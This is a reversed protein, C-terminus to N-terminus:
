GEGKVPPLLLSAFWRLSQGTLERTFSGGLNFLYTKMVDTHQCKVNHLPIQQIPPSVILQLFIV